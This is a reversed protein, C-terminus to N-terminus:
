LILSVGKAVGEQNGNGHPRQQKQLSIAELEM